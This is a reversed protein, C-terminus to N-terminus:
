GLASLNFPLAKTETSDLRYCRLTFTLNAFKVFLAPPWFTAEFAPTKLPARIEDRGM